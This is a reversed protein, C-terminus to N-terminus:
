QSHNLTLYPYSHHDTNTRTCRQSAPTATHNPPALPRQHRLLRTIITALFTHDRPQVRSRSARHCQRPTRLAALSAHHLSTIRPHHRPSPHILKLRTRTLLPPVRKLHPLPPTTPLHIRSTRPPSALTDNHPPSHTSDPSTLTTSPSRPPPHLPSVMPPLISLSVQGRCSSYRTVGSVQLFLVSHCRVGASLTSLSVQGSVQLFLVSVGSGVGASLTSLCRVRCRMEAAKAEAIQRNIKVEKLREKLIEENLKKSQRAEELKEFAEQLRVEAQKKQLDILTQRHAVLKFCMEAEEETLNRIKDQSIYNDDDDYLSRRIKRRKRTSASQKEHVSLPTDRSPGPTVMSTLTATSLGESLNVPEPDDPNVEITVAEQIYTGCSYSNALAPLADDDFNCGLDNVEPAILSLVKEVDKPIEPPPAGCGTKKKERRHLGHQQKSKTKLREWAKQLQKKTRKPGLNMANYKSELREWAKNKLAVVKGNTDKNNIIPEEEIMTLLMNQEQQSM